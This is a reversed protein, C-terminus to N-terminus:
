RVGVGQGPWHEKWLLGRNLSGNWEWWPHSSQHVKGISGKRTIEIGLGTRDDRPLSRRHPAHAPGGGENSQPSSKKNREEWGMLSVVRLHSSSLGTSQIGKCGWVTESQKTTNETKSEQWIPFCTCDMAKEEGWREETRRGSLGHREWASQLWNFPFGGFSIDM